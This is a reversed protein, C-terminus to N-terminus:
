ISPFVKPLLSTEYDMPCESDDDLTYLYAIVDGVSRIYWVMVFRVISTRLHVMEVTYKMHLDLVLLLYYIKYMSYEYFYIVFCNVYLIIFSKILVLIIDTSQCSPFINLIYLPFLLFSVM